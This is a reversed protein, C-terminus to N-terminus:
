PLEIIEDGRQVYIHIQDELENDFSHKMEQFCDLLKIAYDKGYLTEIREIGLIKIRIPLKSCAMDTLCDWLADLNCGYYDPFDLADRIIPHVELYHEVNRFDVVYLEKYEYM